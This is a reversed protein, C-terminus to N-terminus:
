VVSKRDAIAANYPVKKGKSKEKAFNEALEFTHVKGNAAVYEVYKGGYNGVKIGNELDTIQAPILVRDEVLLLHISYLLPLSRRQKIKARIDRRLHVFAASLLFLLQGKHRLFGSELSRFLM